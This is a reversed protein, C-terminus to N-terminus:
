SPHFRLCGLLISSVLYQSYLVVQNTVLVRAPTSLKGPTWLALKSRVQHLIAADRDERNIDIGFQFGLYRAPAGPELWKLGKDEGWRTSRISEEIAVAFSKNWNVKSGSAACFQQLVEYVRQLNESSGEVYLNTDDAYRQDRVVEGNPLELGRIGYQTDNIM